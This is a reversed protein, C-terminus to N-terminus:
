NPSEIPICTIEPDFHKTDYRYELIPKYPTPIQKQNMKNWDIDAFFPHEKIEEAGRTFGL